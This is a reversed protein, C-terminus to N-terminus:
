WGGLAGGAKKETKHIHYTRTNHTQKDTHRDTHASINLYTIKGNSASVAITEGVLHFQAAM